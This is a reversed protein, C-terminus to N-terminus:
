KVLLKEVQPIVIKGRYLELLGDEQMENLIKSVNIRSTNIIRALEEMKICFQKPGVPREIHTQIFQLLHEETSDGAHLWLRNNLTQARNSIINMFNLRFIAYKFLEDMMFSKSISISDTEDTLATYTSVYSTTMGFLSQPEILLPAEGEEIVSYSGEPAHTQISVRGKLIFTLQRCSTGAQIITEGAKHKTFHLKVKELITTFDEQALGQFLPLQLLTEFMTGM